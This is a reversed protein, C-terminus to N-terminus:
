RDSVLPMQIHMFPAGEDGDWITLPRSKSTFGITVAASSMTNIAQALMECNMLIVANKKEGTVVGFNVLTSSHGRGGDSTTVQLMEGEFDLRASKATSDKVFVESLRLADLLEKREVTFISTPPAIVRSVDPFKADGMRLATLCLRSDIAIDMYIQEPGYFEISVEDDTEYGDFLQAIDDISTAPICFDLPEAYDRLTYISARYGDTSEMVLKGNRTVLHITTLTPRAEDTAAAFATAKTAAVLEGLTLRITLGADNKIGTPFEKADIGKILAKSRADFTRVAIGDAPEIHIIDGKLRKLTDSLAKYPVAIDFPEGITPPTYRTIVRRALDTAEVRVDGNVSLRVCSLVPLTSRTAVARGAQNLMTVLTERAVTTTM